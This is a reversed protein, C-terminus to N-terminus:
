LWGGVIATHLELQSFLDFIRYQMHEILGRKQIMMKVVMVVVMMVMVM